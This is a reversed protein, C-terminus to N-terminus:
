AVAFGDEDMILLLSYTANKRMIFLLINEKYLLGRVKMKTYERM